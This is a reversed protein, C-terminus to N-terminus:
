VTCHATRVMLSARLAVLGRLRESPDKAAAVSAQPVVACFLFSTTHAEDLMTAQVLLSSAGFRVLAPPPGSALCPPAAVAGRRCSTLFFGAPFARALALGRAGASGVGSFFQPLLWGV